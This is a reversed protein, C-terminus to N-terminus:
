RAQSELKKLLEAPTVIYFQNKLAEYHRDFTVIHDCNHIFAAIAHPRDTSDDLVFNRKYILREMRTLLGILDFQHKCLEGIAERAVQGSNESSFTMKCFAFIEQISYISVISHLLGTDIKEFLEKVSLLRKKDKLSYESFLLVNVVSADLYAKM